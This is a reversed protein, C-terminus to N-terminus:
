LPFKMNRELVSGNFRTVLECTNDILFWRAGGEKKCYKVSTVVSCM